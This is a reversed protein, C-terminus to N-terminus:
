HTKGGYGKTNSRLSRKNNNNIENDVWDPFKQNRRRIVTAPLREKNIVTLPTGNPEELCSQLLNGQMCSNCQVASDVFCCSTLYKVVNLQQVSCYLRPWFVLTYGFTEPTLWYRFLCCCYVSTSFCCLTNHRCIECSQSVFYRYLQVEHCLATGNATRARPLWDPFKQIRRRM